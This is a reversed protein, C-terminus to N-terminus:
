RWSFGGDVVLETGTVFASDECSLFLAARAIDMPEGLRKLAARQEARERHEPNEWIYRTMETRVTGPCITNARVTPALDLAMGKALMLLAAKSASYTAQLRM